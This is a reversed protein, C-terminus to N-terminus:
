LELEISGLKGFSSRAKKVLIHIFVNINQLIQDLNNPKVLSSRVNPWTQYLELKLNSARARSPSSLTLSSGDRRLKVKSLIKLDIM